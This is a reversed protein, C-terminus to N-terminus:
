EPQVSPCPRCSRLRSNDLNSRAQKYLGPVDQLIAQFQAHNEKSVPLEVDLLPSVYRILDISPGTDGASMSYFGPDRAWPKLVRHHFHVANMEARVLHYDVKQWVPWDDINLAALRKQFEKLGRHKEEMVAPSYDPIGESIPPEQYERFENFLAVLKDYSSSAASELCTHFVAFCAFVIYVITLRKCKFM